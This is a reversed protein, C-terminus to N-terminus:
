IEENDPRWSSLVSLKKQYGAKSANKNKIDCSSGTKIIKLMRYHEYALTELSDKLLYRKDDYPSLGIKTINM